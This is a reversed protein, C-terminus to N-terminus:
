LALVIVGRIQDPASGVAFRGGGARGMAMIAGPRAVAAPCFPVRQAAWRSTISDAERTM